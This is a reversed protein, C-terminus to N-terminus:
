DQTKPAPRFPIRSAPQVRIRTWGSGAGMQGLNGQWDIADAGSQPQGHLLLVKGPFKKALATLQKRVESFGDRRGRLKALKAADPVPLPNGDSFLVIARNNGQKAHIFIRALWERNAIARDEFESNRGADPLYHNNDAPLNITAFLINGYEWRANEAYSRFKASSSQRILAVSANGFAADDSFFLDRVRNLRDIAISKGNKAKCNVWDSAALSVILANEARVLSKRSRAYVADSCSETGAKIGNAVVFALNYENSANIAHQLPNDGAQPDVDPAIVGFDFNRVAGLAPAPALLMGALLALCPLLALRQPMPASEPMPWNSSAICRM